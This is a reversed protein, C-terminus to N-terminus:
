SSWSSLCVRFRFAVLPPPSSVADAAQRRVSPPRVCSRRRVVIPSPSAHVDRADFRTPQPPAHSERAPSRAARSPAHHHSDPQDEQNPSTEADRVSHHGKALIPPETSLIKPSPPQVIEARM